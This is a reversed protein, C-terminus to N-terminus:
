TKPHFIWLFNNIGLKKPSFWPFDMDLFLNTPFIPCGWWKLPVGAEVAQLRAGANIAAFGSMHALLMAWCRARHLHIDKPFFPHDNIISWFRWFFLAQHLASTNFLHIELFCSYLIIYTLPIGSGGCEIQVDLNLISKRMHIGEPLSVYSHFNVLNLSYIWKLIIM